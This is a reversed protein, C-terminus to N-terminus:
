CWWPPNGPAAPMRLHAGCACLEGSATSTSRSKQPARLTGTSPWGQTYKAHPEWHPRAATYGPPGPFPLPLSVFPPGAASSCTHLARCPSGASLLIMSPDSSVTDWAISSARFFFSSALAVVLLNQFFFILKVASRFGM